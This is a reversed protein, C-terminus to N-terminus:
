SWINNLGFYNHLYHISEIYNSITGISGENIMIQYNSFTSHTCPARKKCHMSFALTHAENEANIPLYRSCRNCSKLVILGRNKNPYDVISDFKSGDDSFYFLYPINLHTKSNFSDYVDNEVFYDFDVVGFNFGYLNIYQGDELQNLRVTCSLSANSIINFDSTPIEIHAGVSNWINSTLDFTFNKKVLEDNNEYSINGEVKCDISPKIYIGFALISLERDFLQVLELNSIRKVLDIKSEVFNHRSTKIIKCQGGTTDGSVKFGSKRTVERRKYTRFNKQKIPM